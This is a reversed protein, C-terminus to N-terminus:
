VGRKLEGLAYAARQQARVGLEEGVAHSLLTPACPPTPVVSGDGRCMGGRRGAPSPSMGPLPVASPNAAQPVSVSKEGEGGAGRGRPPLPSGRTGGRGGRPLPPCLPHPCFPAGVWERRRPSFRGQRLAETGFRQVRVLEGGAGRRLPTPKKRAHRSAANGLLANKDGHSRSARAGLVRSAPFAPTGGAM